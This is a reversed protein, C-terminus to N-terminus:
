WGELRTVLETLRRAVAARDDFRRGDRYLWWLWNVAGLVAGTRDLAVALAEEERSLPCVERYASLGVAWMGLDDGALSGLLRALDAAVHSPKLGGYDVVGSVRDGDFLIHDHWVDCLCPQVRGPLDAWAALQGEVAAVHAPLLRWARLAWARVPDDEPGAFDPRWGSRVLALWERACELRQRVAPCVAPPGASPAWARHLRAVASCAARLRAATPRERFDARGPMWATVEWLRGAHEVWTAGDRTRFVAPVYSLGAAIASQMLRHIAQLRSPSPGSEPWARLCLPGAPGGAVRWLRAGSFGGRNGQPEAPGAGAAPYCRLVERAAQDLSM